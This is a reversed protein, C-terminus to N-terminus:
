RECLAFGGPKAKSGKSGLEVLLGVLEVMNDPPLPSLLRMLREALGCQGPKLEKGILGGIMGDVFPQLASDPLDRVLDATKDQKEGSIQLLARKARPWAAQRGVQYQAVLGPGRSRLFGDAPLSPSCHEILGGIASPLAFAAM